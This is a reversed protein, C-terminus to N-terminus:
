ARDAAADAIQEVLRWAARLDLNALNLAKRASVVAPDDSMGLSALPGDDQEQAEATELTVASTAVEKERLDIPTALWDVGLMALVGRNYDHTAAGMSRIAILQAQTCDKILEDALPAVADLAERTVTGPAASLIARHASYLKQM